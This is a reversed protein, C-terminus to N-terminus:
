DRNTGAPGSDFPRFMADGFWARTEAMPVLMTISHASNAM